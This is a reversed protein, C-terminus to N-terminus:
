RQYRARLSRTEFVLGSLATVLAVAGLILAMRVWPAGVAMRTQAIEVLTWLWSIAGLGLAVQLLRPVWTKRILVLWPFALCALVLILNGSRLFHAAMVLGSLFVPILKIANM